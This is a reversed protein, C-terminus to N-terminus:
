RAATDPDAVPVIAHLVPAALGDWSVQNSRVPLATPINPSGLGAPGQFTARDRSPRRAAISRAPPLLLSMQIMPALPVVGNVTSVGAVCRNGMQDGSLKCIAYADVWIGSPM